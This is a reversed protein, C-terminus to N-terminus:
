ASGLFHLVYTAQDYCKSKLLMSIAYMVLILFEHFIGM